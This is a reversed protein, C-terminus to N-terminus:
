GSSARGHYQLCSSCEAAQPPFVHLVRCKGCFIGPFLFSVGCPAWAVLRRMCSRCSKAYTSFPLSPPRPPFKTAYTEQCTSKDVHTQSCPKGPGNEQHASVGARGGHTGRCFVGDRHFRSNCQRKQHPNPEIHDLPLDM